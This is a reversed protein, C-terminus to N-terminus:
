TCTGRGSRRDGSGLAAFVSRHHWGHDAISLSGRSEIGSGDVLGRRAGGKRREFTSGELGKTWVGQRWSPTNSGITRGMDSLGARRVEQGWCGGHLGEAPGSLSGWSARSAKGLLMDRMVDRSKVRSEKADEKGVSGSMEVVKLRRKGEDGVGDVELVSRERERKRERKRKGGLGGKGSGSCESEESEDVFVDSESSEDGSHM